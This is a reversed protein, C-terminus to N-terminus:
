SGGHHFGLNSSISFQHMGSFTLKLVIGLVKVSMVTLGHTLLHWYLGDCKDSWTVFGETGMGSFENVSLNLCKLSVLQSLQSNIGGTLNNFSLDLFELGVFNRFAPLPGVLRNRSFDLVKLGDMGGCGNFFGDSISKLNNNSLNLSQLSDIRCVESLFDSSSLGFGSLSLSIISSNNPPSCSVGKWLCPNPEKTVDWPLQTGNLQQSISIMVTDQSSHLESFVMPHMFCFFAVFM